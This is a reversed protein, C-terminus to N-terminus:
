STSKWEYVTVHTGLPIRNNNNSNVYGIEDGLGVGNKLYIENNDVGLSHAYYEKILRSEGDRDASVSTMASEAKDAKYANIPIRGAIKTTTDVGQDDSATDIWFKGTTIDFYCYGQHYTKPLATANNRIETLGEEAFPQPPNNDVMNSLIKFLAM